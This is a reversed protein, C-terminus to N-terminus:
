DETRGDSDSPFDKLVRLEYYAAAYVLCIFLFASAYLANGLLNLALYSLADKKWLMELFPYFLLYNVGYVLAVLLLVKFFNGRILELGRKIGAVAGLREMLCAPVAVSFLTTIIIEPFPPPLLAYAGQCLLGTILGIGFLPRAM